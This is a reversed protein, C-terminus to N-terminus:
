GRPWCRGCSAGATWRFRPLLNFLVLWVNIVMLKALMGGSEPNNADM